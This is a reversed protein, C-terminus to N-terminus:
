FGIERTNCIMNDEEPLRQIIWSRRIRNVTNNNVLLRKPPLPESFRYGCPPSDNSALRSEDRKYKLSRQDKERRQRMGM